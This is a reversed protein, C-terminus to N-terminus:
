PKMQATSVYQHNVSDGPARWFITVVALSSSAAGTGGAVTTFTVTPLASNGSTVGPLGSAQVAALWNAYPTGSGSSAFNAQLTAATRDSVWMQSILDNAKFAAITRYEADTAQKIASAQLGVMGLIGVSFILIAILAEILLIGRQARGRPRPPRHMPVPRLRTHASM